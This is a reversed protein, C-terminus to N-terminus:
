VESAVALIGDKDNCRDYIDIITVIANLVIVTYIDEAIGIFFASLREAISAM